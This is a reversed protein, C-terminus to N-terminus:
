RLASTSSPHAEVSARLAAVEDRLKALEQGHRTSVGQIRRDLEQLILDM